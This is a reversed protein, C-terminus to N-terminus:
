TVQIALPVFAKELPCELGSLTTPMSILLKLMQLLFKDEPARSSRGLTMAVGIGFSSEFFL